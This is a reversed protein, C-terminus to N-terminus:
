PSATLAELLEDVAITAIGVNADSMGYPVVLIGGHLMAGCSYVVNPVYGDREDAVPVLLPHRLHGIVRTPDDLDLLEAGIVYRRMPGVGHTLVIWGAPTEVPSGCNGLQITGWPETPARLSVPGEWTMPNDSLVVSNTTRDWRSLAVYSGGITRPFLAMGKDAAARGSLPTSTFTTFDATTLRAVTIHDGDYATYTAHYAVTGDDATFRVFRADEMGHSETPARPLLVRESIASHEPFSVQYTSAAIAEMREITKTASRRTILQRRLAGIAVALQDADFPDPLQDLVYAASSGDDDNARLLRHFLTRHYRVSGLRGTSLYPGPPDLDVTGDADVTGTRFEIASRHGEGIARLSMVFRTQGPATGSQDPHAVMSPNCVSAAEVAYEQTFYAGILLRRDHSLALPGTVRHAVLEYHRLMVAELDRYRGAFLSWVEELTATVQADDLALVRTIVSGARSEGAILGEQGPVFLRALVRTPDPRLRIRGRRVDITPATTV